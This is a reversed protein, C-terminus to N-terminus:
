KLQFGFNFQILSRIINFCAYKGGDEAARSYADVIVDETAGSGKCDFVRYM